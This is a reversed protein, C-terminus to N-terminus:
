PCALGQELVQIHWGPPLDFGDHPSVGSVKSHRGSVWREGRRPSRMQQGRDERKMKGMGRIGPEALRSSSRITQHARQSDSCELM